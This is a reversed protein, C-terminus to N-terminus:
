PLGPLSHGKLRVQAACLLRPINPDTKNIIAQFDKESYFPFFACVSLNKATVKGLIEKRKMALLEALTAFRSASPRSSDLAKYLKVELARYDLLERHLPTEESFDQAYCSFEKSVYCCWSTLNYPCAYTRHTRMLYRMCPAPVQIIHAPIPCRGPLACAGCPRSAALFLRETPTEEKLPKARGM